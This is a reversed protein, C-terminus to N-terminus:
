GKVPLAITFTSGKGPESEVSVRGHHARVIEDVMALGLGTGMIGLTRAQEGRQFKSFIAEREDAPIGIGHDRVTIHVDRDLRALGVEVTHPTPSYKVANELLNHVARSLAEDDSDVVVRGNASFAVDHGSQLSQSRFDDVVRRVLDNLDCPELRYRRAGAEMRGFDLLSEVLRTLRSTSRSQAEYAQRRRDEGLAPQEILMDTFQRLSTLPTRFEHSVAAVFDSQLRAVATERGVARIIFYSAALALLAVLALGAILVRRRLEFAMREVPPALSATSVSWPLTTDTAARSARGVAGPEVSSTSSGPGTPDTLSFAVQQERAVATVPDLWQSRVFAPTAILARVGGESVQSSVVLSQGRISLLERRPPAAVLPATASQRNWLAGLAEALVEAQRPEPSQEARWRDADAAYLWYMPATLVWRGSHLGSALDDAVARLGADGRARELLTAQGYLGILSAPVGNVAVVDDFARLGAYVSLAEDHRGAGRLARALRVLAGARVSPDPSRALRTFLAVAAAPEGARFELDEGRAFVGAPAEPLSPVVPVFAVRGAPLLEVRRTRFTVAVVGDPWDAAGAALRQESTAIAREIAAVILDAAREVRQRTQQGELSRDQELLRWGLWLLTALPVVTVCVILAVLTRPPRASGRPCMATGRM